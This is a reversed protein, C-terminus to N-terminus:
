ETALYLFQLVCGGVEVVFEVSQDLELEGLLLFGGDDVAGQASACDLPVDLAVVAEWGDGAVLGAWDAVLLEVCLAVGLALM